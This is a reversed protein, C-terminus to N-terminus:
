VPLGGKRYHHVGECASRAASGCGYFQDGATAVSLCLPATGPFRQQLTSPAATEEM